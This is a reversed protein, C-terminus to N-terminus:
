EDDDDDSDSDSDIKHIEVVDNDVNNKSAVMNPMDKPENSRPAHILDYALLQRYANNLNHVLGTRSDSKPLKTANWISGVDADQILSPYNHPKTIMLNKRGRLNRQREKDANFLLNLYSITNTLGIKKGKNSTKGKRMKKLVKVYKDLEKLDFSDNSIFNTRKKANVKGKNAKKVNKKAKNKKKVKKGKPKKEVM